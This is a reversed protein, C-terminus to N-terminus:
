PCIRGARASKPPPYFDGHQQETLIARTFNLPTWKPRPNTWCRYFRPMWQGKKLFSTLDYKKAFKKSNKRSVLTCIQKTSVASRTSSLMETIMLTSLLCLSIVCDSITIISQGPSASLPQSNIASNIMVTHEDIIEWNTKRDGDCSRWITRAAMLKKKIQLLQNSM